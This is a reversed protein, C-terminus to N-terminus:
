PGAAFARRASRPLEVVAFQKRPYLYDEGDEDVVRIECEGPGPDAGCACAVLSALAVASRTVKRRRREGRASCVGLLHRDELRRLSRLDRGGRRRRGALLALEGATWAAVGSSRGDAVGGRLLLRRDVVQSQHAGARRAGGARAGPAPHSRVIWSASRGTLFPHETATTVLTAGSLEDRCRLQEVADLNSLAPREPCGDSEGGCATGLVGFALAAAGRTM